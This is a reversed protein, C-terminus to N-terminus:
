FNDSRRESRNLFDEHAKRDETFFKKTNEQAEEREIGCGDPLLITRGVALM